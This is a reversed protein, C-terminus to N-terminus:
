APALDPVGDGIPAPDEISLGELEHEEDRGRQRAWSPIELGRESAIVQLGGFITFGSIRLGPAEATPEPGDVSNMVGGFIAPGHTSVPTGPAVVIRTGGFVTRVELDAGAPDITAERLDVDAAGYWCLVRGGRFSSATSAFETGDMVSAYDIEDAEADPRPPANKKFNLAAFTGAVAAVVTAIVSAGIAVGLLRALFRVM